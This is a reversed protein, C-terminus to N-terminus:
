DPAKPTATQRTLLSALHVGNRSQEQNAPAPLWAPSKMEERTEGAFGTEGVSSSGPLFSSGCCKSCPTRLQAPLCWAIRRFPNLFSLSDNCVLVRWSTRKKLMRCSHPLVHLQQRTAFYDSSLKRNWLTQQYRKLALLAWKHAHAHANTNITFKLTGKKWGFLLGANQPNGIRLHGNLLDVPPLGPNALRQSWRHQLM